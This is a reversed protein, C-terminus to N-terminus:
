RLRLDDLILRSRGKQNHLYIVIRKVTRMNLPGKAPQNRIEEVPIVVKQADGAIKVQGQYREDFDDAIEQDDIRIHLTQGAAAPAQFYFEFTQYGHWNRPVDFIEVGPYDGPALDMHLAYNGQGSIGGAREFATHCKWDLRRMDEDSEFSIIWGGDPEGGYRHFLGAAALAVLLAALVAGLIIRSKNKDGALNM